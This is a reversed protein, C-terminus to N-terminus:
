AEVLTLSWPMKQWATVEEHLLHASQPYADAWGPRTSLVFGRAQQPHPALMLGAIDPERRAHCLIIALRLSLLQQAMVVDNFDAELKRLKGRHGLVLLSLRHLETLAFGTADANDLIYAGHKHYDSHSIHAGIEHLQAAWCLKRTNRDQEEVSLGSRRQSLQAFLTTAVKEVRASHAADVDFKAMLRAVSATRVDFHRGAEGVMDSLLGHRLGGEATFMREI